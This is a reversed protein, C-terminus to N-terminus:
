RYLLQGRKILEGGVTLHTQRTSRGQGGSIPAYSYTLIQPAPSAVSALNAPNRLRASVAVKRSDTPLVAKLPKKLSRMNSEFGSPALVRQAAPVILATQGAQNIGLYPTQNSSVQSQYQPIPIMYAPSPAPDGFVRVIPDERVIQIQPRMVYWDAKQLDGKKYAYSSSNQAQAATCAISLTTLALVSFCLSKIMYPLEPFALFVDRANFRGYM